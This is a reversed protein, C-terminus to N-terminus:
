SWQSNKLSVNALFICEDPVRLLLYIIQIYYDAKLKYFLIPSPCLNQEVLAENLTATTCFTTHRRETGLSKDTSDSMVMQSRVSLRRSSLSMCTRTCSIM